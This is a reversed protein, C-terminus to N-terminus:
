LTNFMTSSRLNVETIRKGLLREPLIGPSPHVCIIARVRSDQAYARLQRTLGARPTEQVKIEVGVGDPTLFDIVGGDLHAERAIEVGMERLFEHLAEQYLREDPERDWVFGELAALLTWYSDPEKVNYEAEARALDVEYRHLIERAIEDLRKQGSATDLEPEYKDHPNMIKFSQESKLDLLKGILPDSGEASLLFMALVHDSQGFRHLRGIVQHHIQPSWDLEGFVVISSRQQLGDLGEGSRLSLILLHSEGDIFKRKSEDKQKPSETGTIMVPKFDELLRLWIDYVDRHWGVLVVPRGSELIIRTRAAVYHAKSVGTAHRLKVDLMGSSTMREENSFGFLSRKALELIEGISQNFLQADHDVYEVAHQIEPLELGVEDMTRRMMLLRERLVAGLAAPHEILLRNRRTPRGWEKIFDNLKGLCRPKILNLVNYIEDGYNYIPTATLGVCFEASQAVSSAAKFKRTNKHRLEQCEDFVAYQFNARSLAATWGRLISYKFIHVHAEPLKYTQLGDVIHVVVWQRPDPPLSENGQAAVAQEIDKFKERSDMFHYMGRRDVCIAPAFKGFERAAQTALHTKTVFLAPLAREKLISGIAVATKGLGVDDAILMRQQLAVAEVAKLQYNRLPMRLNLRLESPAKLRENFAEIRESQELNEAILQELLPRHKPSVGFPYLKMFWNLETWFGPQNDPLLVSGDARRIIGSFVKRLKQTADPRCEAM